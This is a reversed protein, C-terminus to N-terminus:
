GAAAKMNKFLRENAACVAFSCGAAYEDARRVRYGGTYMLATEAKRSEKKISRETTQVSLTGSPM